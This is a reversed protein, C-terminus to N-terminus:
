GMEDLELDKERPEKLCNECYLQTGTGYWDCYSELDLDLYGNWSEPERSIQKSCKDCTLILELAM